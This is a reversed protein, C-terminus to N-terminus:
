RWCDAASATGTSGKTEGTSAVALTLTTCGADSAQSTGSVPTATVTYATTSVGGLTITYFGDPSRDNSGGTGSWQLAYTLASNEGTDTDDGDLNLDGCKV